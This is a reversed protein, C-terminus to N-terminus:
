VEDYVELSNSLKVPYIDTFITSGNKLIFKLQVRCSLVTHAFIKTEEASLKCTVLSIKKDEDYTIELEDNSKVIIDSLGLKYIVFTSSAEEPINMRVDFSQLSTEGAMISLIKRELKVPRNNPVYGEPQPYNHFMDRM